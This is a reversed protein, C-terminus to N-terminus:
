SNGNQWRSRLMNRAVWRYCKRKMAIDWVQSIFNTTGHWLALLLLLFPLWTMAKSLLLLAELTMVRSSPLPFSSSISTPQESCQELVCDSVVVYAAPSVWLTWCMISSTPEGNREDYLSGPIGLVLVTGDKRNSNQEKIAPLKSKQREPLVFLFPSSSMMLHFWSSPYRLTKHSDKMM